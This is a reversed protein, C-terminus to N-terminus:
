IEESIPGWGRHRWSTKKNFISKDLFVLNDATFQRINQRWGKCLTKSRTLSIRYVVQRSWGQKQLM